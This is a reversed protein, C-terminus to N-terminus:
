HALNRRALENKVLQIYEETFDEKQLLENYVNLLAENSLLEM